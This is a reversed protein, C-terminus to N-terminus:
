EEKKAGPLMLYTTSGSSWYELSKEDIMEKVAKKIESKPIDSLAKEVDKIYFRTKKQSKFWDLIRQKIEESAM